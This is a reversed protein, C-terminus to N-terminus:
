VKFKKFFYKARMDLWINANNNRKITSYHSGHLEREM